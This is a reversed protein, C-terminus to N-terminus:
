NVESVDRQVVSVYVKGRIPEPINSVNEVTVAVPTNGEFDPEFLARETPEAVREINLLDDGDVYVPNIIEYDDETLEDLPVDASSPKRGWMKLEVDGRYNIYDQVVEFNFGDPVVHPDSFTVPDGLQRDSLGGPREEPSLALNQSIDRLFVRQGPDLEPGAWPFEQSDPDNFVSFFRLDEGPEVSFSSIGQARRVTDVFTTNDPFSQQIAERPRLGSM